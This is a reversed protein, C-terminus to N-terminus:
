SPHTPEHRRAESLVTLVARQLRGGQEEGRISLESSALHIQGTCRAALGQLLRGLTDRKAAEDEVDRWPQGVPWRKSLVYPHTLPQNPRNWWGDSGLDLWFQHRSRLDRTLYAYAPALLVAETAQDPRDAAYEATAIGGLILQVYERALTAEDLGESLSVAARFKSASEVLRGYSRAREPQNYLGFGPRALVVGFLKILFLDVPEPEGQQYTELWVRLTEYRERLQFGVAEWLRGLAAADLSGASPRPAADAGVDDAASTLSALTRAGLPFCRDALVRARIPDLDALAVHLALAVDQVGLTRQEGPLVIEWQPHALILLTLLARIVADDRLPTAPRLLALTVGRQALEEQITFRMAESVYPAVIAIEGAPVGKAVLGAIRTAVARVMGIWLRAGDHPALARQLQGAPAAPPGAIRLARRLADSFALADASPELLQDFALTQTCGGGVELAGVADAGLFVRLGGGEDYALVTSRCRSRAWAAIEQAVPVSEELNDVLLHRYRAAFYRQYVEHPWLYRHYVEMVLSFDLLNHALCENRFRTACDQAQLYAPLHEQEGSWASKLRRYIDTHDFGVLASKNLNDILQSLLRGRRIALDAFYGENAMLPAVIRGMFYQTTEITLFTPEAHPHAFGAAQAVLPWFLAVARQALSYFTVIDVGGRTPATLAALAQEWRQAQARQPLLVLIEYPRRGERLLAALRALLASSKGTGPLGRLFLSGGGERPYSVVVRQADTLREPLVVPSLM